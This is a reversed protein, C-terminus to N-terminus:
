RWALGREALLAVQAEFRPLEAALARGGDNHPPNKVSGYELLNGLAGQPGGKDPGIEASVIDRGFPTLTYSVSRPYHKAHRRGTARANARWDNKINLAGRAVVGRSAQRIRPISRALHQELRRVDSMDFRATTM